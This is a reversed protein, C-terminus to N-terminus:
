IRKQSKSEFFPYLIEYLILLRGFLDFELLGLLRVLKLLLGWFTLRYCLKFKLLIFKQNIKKFRATKSHSTSNFYTKM